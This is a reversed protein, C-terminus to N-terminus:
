CQKKSQKTQKKKKFKTKNQKITKSLRIPYSSIEFYDQNANRHNTLISFILNKEKGMQIKEKVFERNLEM